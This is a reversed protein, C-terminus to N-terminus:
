RVKKRRALACRTGHRRNWESGFPPNDKIDKAATRLENLKWEKAHKECLPITVKGGVPLIEDALDPCRPRACFSM